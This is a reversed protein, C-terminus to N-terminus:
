PAAESPNPSPQAHSELPEALSRRRRKLALKWVAAMQPPPMCGLLAVLEQRAKSRLEAKLMCGLLMIARDLDQRTQPVKEPVPWGMPAQQSKKM